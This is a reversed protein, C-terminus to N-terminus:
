PENHIFFHENTSVHMTPGSQNCKPNFSNITIPMYNSLSSGLTIQDWITTMTSFFHAM